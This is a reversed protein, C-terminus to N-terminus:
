LLVGQTDTGEWLGIATAHFSPNARGEQLFMARRFLELWAKLDGRKLTISCSIAITRVLSSAPALQIRVETRNAPRLAGLRPPWPCRQQAAASDRDEYFLLVPRQMPPLALCAASSM